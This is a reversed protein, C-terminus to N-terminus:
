LQFVESNPVSISGPGRLTGSSICLVYIIAHVMCVRYMYSDNVRYYVCEM